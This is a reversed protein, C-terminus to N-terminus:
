PVSAPRANARRTFPPYCGHADRWHAHRPTAPNKLNTRRGKQHGQVDDFRMHSRAHSGRQWCLADLTFRSALPFSALPYGPGEGPLRAVDCFM